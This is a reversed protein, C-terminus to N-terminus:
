EGEAMSPQAKFYDKLRDRLSWTMRREVEALLKFSQDREADIRSNLIYSYEALAVAITSLETDTFTM